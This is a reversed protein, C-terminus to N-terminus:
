RERAPGRPTLRGLWRRAHLLPLAGGSAGPFRERMYEADPLLRGALYALRTRVTPVARLELWERRLRGARLFAAGSAALPSSELAAILADLHPSPLVGACRRLGDLAIAAIRKDRVLTVFRSAEDDTMAGALLRFDHLWILRDGSGQGVFANNGARHM